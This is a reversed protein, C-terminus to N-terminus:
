VHVGDPIMQGQLDDLRARVAKTIAAANSGPKKAIAPTVAAATGANPGDRMAPAGHWVYQTNPEHGQSIEAVDALQIPQNNSVGIVLEAVDAANALFQGAQVPSAGDASVRNGIHQAQNSAQLAQSIEHVSLQYAALKSADLIVSVAQSPAGITYM